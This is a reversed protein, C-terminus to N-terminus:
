TGYRVPSGVRGRTRSSKMGSKRSSTTRSHWTPCSFRPSRKRFISTQRTSSHASSRDTARNTPARALWPRDGPCTIGASQFASEEGAADDPKITTNALSKGRHGPSGDPCTSCQIRISTLESGGRDTLNLGGDGACNCGIWEKWPFECLHGASCVAIFRVPM